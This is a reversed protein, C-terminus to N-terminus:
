PDSRDVGPEMFWQELHPTLRDLPQYGSTLLRMGHADKLVVSPFGGVGLRQTFRFEAVTKEKSVPSEFTEQFQERVIGQAEALDALVESGTVDLQRVYFAEQISRFYRFTAAQDLERISVVARCPPETDYVFGDPLAGDFSFKQGTLEIVHRWHNLIEARMEGSMPVTNGARLGGVVLSIGARNGYRGVIDSIVPSFGWCWSCMPDAFYLIQREHTDM